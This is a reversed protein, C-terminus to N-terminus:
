PSDSTAPEVPPLTLVKFLCYSLVILVTGISLAMIVTGVTNLPEIALVPEAADAAVQALPPIM